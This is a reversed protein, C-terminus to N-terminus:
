VTVTLVPTFSRAPLAIVGAKWDAKVVASMVGGATTEVTGAFRAVDTGTVVTTLAVNLLAISGAVIVVVVNVSLTVAVLVATVPVTEYM